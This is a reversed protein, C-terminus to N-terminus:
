VIRFLLLGGVLMLVGRRSGVPWNGEEFVVGCGNQWWCEVWVSFWLSFNAIISRSIARWCSRLTVKSLRIVPSSSVVIRISWLTAVMRSFSSLICELEDFCRLIDGELLVGVSYSIISSSEWGLGWWMVCDVPHSIGHCGYVYYLVSLSDHHLREICVEDRWM